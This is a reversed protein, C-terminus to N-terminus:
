LADWQIRHVDEKEIQVRLWEKIGFFYCTVLCFVDVYRNRKRRTWKKPHMEKTAM